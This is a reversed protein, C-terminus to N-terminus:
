LRLPYSIKTLLVGRKDFVKQCYDWSINYFISYLFRMENLIMFYGQVVFSFHM